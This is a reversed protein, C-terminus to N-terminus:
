DVDRWIPRKRFGRADKVFCQTLAFYHIGTLGDRGDIWYERENGWWIDKEKKTAHPDINYKAAWIDYEFRSAKTM